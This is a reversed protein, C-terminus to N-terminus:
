PFRYAIDKQRALWAFVETCKQMSILEAETPALTPRSKVKPIPTNTIELKVEFGTHALHNFVRKASRESAYYGFLRWDTKGRTRFYVTSTTVPPPPAAKDPPVKPTSKEQAPAEFAATGLVVLLLIAFLSRSPM